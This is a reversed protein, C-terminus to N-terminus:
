PSTLPRQAADPAPAAGADRGGFAEDRAEPTPGARSM